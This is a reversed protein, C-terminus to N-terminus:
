SCSCSKWKKKKEELNEDTKEKSENQVKGQGNVQEPEKLPEAKVPQLQRVQAGASKSSEALELLENINQVKSEPLKVQVLREARTQPRYAEELKSNARSLSSDQLTLLTPRPQIPGQQKPEPKQQNYNLQQNQKPQLTQIPPAPRGTSPNEPQDQQLQSNDYLGQPRPTRLPYRARPRAGLNAFPRPEPAVFPRTWRPPQSPVSMGGPRFTIRQKDTKPKQFTQNM